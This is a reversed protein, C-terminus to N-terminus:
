KEKILTGDKLERFGLRKLIGYMHDHGPSVKTTVVPGDFIQRLLGRTAWVRRWQPLISAHVETGKRYLAGICEGDRVIAKIIWGEVAQRYGEFSPPTNWDTADYGVRLALERDDTLVTPM